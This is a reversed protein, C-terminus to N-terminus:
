IVNKFGAFNSQTADPKEERDTRGTSMKSRSDTYNTLSKRVESTVKTKVIKELKTIDFNNKALYAYMFQADINNEYSEQLGTKGSKKDIKYIFDWIDEKAKKNLKFGNLEEKDFWTKHLKDYYEKAEQEQKLAQKKQNDIISSKFDKEHKQLKPLFQKAKAELKGLDEYVSLEEEIEADEYGALRLGERITHKQTAESEITFGEWTATNYYLNIFQKPDGGNEVYDLFKQTEEPYSKKWDNVRKEITKDVVKELGEETDEFEDDEYDLIGKEKMYSAFPKLSSKNEEEEIVEETEEQTDEIVEKTSKAKKKDLAAAQKTAVEALKEDAIRTAEKEADTEEKPSKDGKDTEDETDSKSVNEVRKNTDLISFNAFPNEVIEEKKDEKSM